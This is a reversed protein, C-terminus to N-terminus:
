GHLTLKIIEDPFLIGMLGHCTCTNHLMSLIILREFMIIGMTIEVGPFSRSLTIFISAYSYRSWHAFFSYETQLFLHFMVVLMVSVRPFYSEVGM